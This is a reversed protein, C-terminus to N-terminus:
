RGERQRDAERRDLIGRALVAVHTVWSILEVLQADALKELEPPAVENLIALLDPRHDDHFEQAVQIPDPRRVGEDVTVKYGEPAQNRYEIEKIIASEFDILDLEPDRDGDQIQDMTESLHTLLGRLDGDTLGRLEPTKGSVEVVEGPRPRKIGSEALRAYIGRAKYQREIDGEAMTLLAYEKAEALNWEAQGRLTALRSAVRQAYAELARDSFKNLANQM